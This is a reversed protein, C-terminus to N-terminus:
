NRSKRQLETPMEGTLPHIFPLRDAAHFANGNLQRQWAGAKPSWKFGNRRLESRTDEDPKEDFYIRLRNDEKNPEVHGGDFEWGTYVTGAHQELEAIRKKIRRIEASNNSLQWPLYPANGYHWSSAMDAKLAEAQEPTLCPCGDLTNHKRFYANVAKMTEQTSELNALKKKLKAVAYSDDASIGGTGTGRIKDLLGQIEQWEQMNRERAANQDKKKRAPFNAPGAILVSPCRAEIAYGENMNEALKRAYKDLLGDIKEHYMADVRGKQAEAIEAARDVMTKYGATASGPTYDSFSNMEKARRAADENINYYKVTNM